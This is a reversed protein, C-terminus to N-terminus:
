RAPQIKPAKELPQILVLETLATDQFKAGPYAKAITLKVTEVPKESAPLDFFFKENELFEDPISVRKAEGGNVSVDLEAVRGNAQYLDKSTAYGNVIGVRSIKAPKPLKLTLSEGIGDGKAGEVWAGEDGADRLNDAKYNKEGQAALTSSAEITFDSRWFEWNKGKLKGEDDFISEGYSVYENLFLADGDQVKEQEEQPASNFASQQFQAERTIIKLDDELTPEFDTFQWHWENGKREFRKPHSLTVNNPSITSAKVIVTGQKIPGAWLGAASFLYTLSLPGLRADDSVYDYEGYYPNRYSVILRRTQGEDFELNFVHWSNVVAGEVLGEESLKFEDSRQQWKVDKGDAKLVLNEIKPKLTEPKVQQGEPADEDYKVGVSIASPFGAEIKVKKGPNHLVYEIRVDAYEIHLDIELRESIMEVQEVNKPQLASTRQFAGTHKIGTLYGGGNALLFSPVLLFIWLHKMIGWLLGKVPATLLWLTNSWSGLPRALIPSFM